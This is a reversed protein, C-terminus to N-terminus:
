NTNLFVTNDKLNQEVWNYFNPKTFFSRNVNFSNWVDTIKECKRLTHDLYEPHNSCLPCTPSHIINFKHMKSSTLLGNKLVFWINKKERPHCTLKWIWSTNYFRNNSTCQSNIQSLLIKFASKTTFLGNFSLHWSNSDNILANNPSKVVLPTSYIEFLINPPFIISLNRISSLGNQLVHNVNYSYENKLFPGRIRSCLSDNPLWNENWFNTNKGNIILKKIGLNFINMDKNLSKRIFSISINEIILRM